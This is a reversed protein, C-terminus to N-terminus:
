HNKVSLEPKMCKLYVIFEIYIDILLLYKEKEPIIKACKCVKNLSNIYNILPNRFVTKELLKKEM